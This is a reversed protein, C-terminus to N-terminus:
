RVDGRCLSLGAVERDEAGVRALVHDDERLARCAPVPREAHGVALLAIRQLAM